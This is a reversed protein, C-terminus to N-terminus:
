PPKGDRRAACRRPRRLSIAESREGHRPTTHEMVPGCLPRSHRGDKRLPAVQMAKARTPTRRLEPLSLLIGVRGTAITSACEPM